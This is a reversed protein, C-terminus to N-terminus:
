RDHVACVDGTVILLRLPFLWNEPQHWTYELTVLDQGYIEGMRAVNETQIELKVFGRGDNDDNVCGQQHFYKGAYLTWGNTAHICHGEGFRRKLIRLM